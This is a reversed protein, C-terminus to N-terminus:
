HDVYLGNVAFDIHHKPNATVKSQKKGKVTDGAFHQKDDAIFVKSAVGDMVVTKGALSSPLNVGYKKFHASITRGQGADMTFWGGKEKTVKIIKGRIAVGYRAKNGMFEELKSASIAGSTDPKTGYIQGHVPGQPKQALVPLSFLISILLLYYTKM